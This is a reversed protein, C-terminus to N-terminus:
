SKSQGGYPGGGYSPSRSATDWPNKKGLLHLLSSLGVLSALGFGLTVVFEKRTMEKQMLAQIPKPM